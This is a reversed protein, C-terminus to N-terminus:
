RLNYGLQEKDGAIDVIRCLEPQHTDDTINIRSFAARLAMAAATTIKCLKGDGMGTRNEEM